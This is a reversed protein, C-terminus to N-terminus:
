TYHNSIFYLALSLLQYFSFDTKYEFLAQAKLIEKKIKKLITPQYSTYCFKRYRYM